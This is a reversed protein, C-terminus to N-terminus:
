LLTHILGSLNGIRSTTLEVPSIFIERDGNVRLFGTERSLNPRGTPMNFTDVYM